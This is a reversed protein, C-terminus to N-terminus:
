LLAHQVCPDDHAGVLRRQDPESPFLAELISAGLVAVQRKLGDPQATPGSFM